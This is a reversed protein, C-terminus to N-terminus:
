HVEVLVRLLQADEKATRGSAPTPAEAIPLVEPLALYSTDSLLPREAATPVVAVPVQRELWITDREWLTDTQM